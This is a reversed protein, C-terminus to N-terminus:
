AYNQAVGQGEDYMTAINYQASEDGQEAALKYWKFAQIYDQPVEEGSDYLAGLNYQAIVDGQNAAQLLTELTAKATVSFM